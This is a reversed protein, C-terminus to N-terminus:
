EFSSAFLRFPDLHLTALMTREASGIRDFLGGVLISGDARLAAAHIRQGPALLLTDRPTGDGAADFVEIRDVPTAFPRPIVGRRVAFLRGATAGLLVDIHEAPPPSWNGTAGSDTTFRLLGTTPTSGPLSQRFEAFVHDPTAALKPISLVGLGHALPRWATDLLAGDFRALHAISQGALTRFAGGVVLRGQADLLLSEVTADPDPQWTPDARCPAALSVRALNRRPQGCVDGEFRGGIYLWGNADDVLLTHIRADAGDYTGILRAPHWSELPEGEPHYRRLSPPSPSSDDTFLKTAIFTRNGSDAAIATTSDCVSSECTPGGPRWDALRDSDARLRLFKDGPLDGAWPFGGFLVTDGSRSAALLAVGSDARVRPRFSADIVGTSTLRVLQSGDPSPSPGNSFGPDLFVRGEVDVALMPLFGFPLSGAYTSDAEGNGGLPIRRVTCPFFNRGCADAFVANGSVLLRRYRTLEFNFPNWGIWEPAGDAASIRVLLRGPLGASFPESGGVLLSASAPDWAMTEVFRFERSRWSPDITGTDLRLRHVRQQDLPGQVFYVHNPPAFTPLSGSWPITLTGPAPLGVGDVTVTVIRPTSGGLAMVVRGDFSAIAAIPAEAIHAFPAWSPDVAGSVADLKVLRTRPVNGFGVFSGGAILSGDSASVILGVQCAPPGWSTAAGRCDPAFGSVGFGEVDVAALGDSRVGRVRNFSGGLIIRGSPLPLVAGVSGNRTVDHQIPPGLEIGQAAPGIFLALVFAGVNARQRAARSTRM